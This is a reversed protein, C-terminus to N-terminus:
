TKVSVRCGCDPCEFTTEVHDADIERDESMILHPWFAVSGDDTWRALQRGCNQCLIPKGAMNEM